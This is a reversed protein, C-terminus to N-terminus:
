CQKPGKLLNVTRLHVSVHSKVYANVNVNVYTKRQIYNRFFM